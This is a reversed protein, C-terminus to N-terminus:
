VGREDRVLSQFVAPPHMRPELADGDLMRELCAEVSEAVVIANEKAAIVAETLLAVEGLRGHPEIKAALIGGGRLDCFHLWKVTSQERLKRRAAALARPDPARGEAEMTRVLAEWKEFAPSRAAPVELVRLDDAPRIVYAAGKDGVHLSAGNTLAYLAALDATGDGFRIGRATEDLLPEGIAHELEVGLQAEGLPARLSHEDRFLTRRLRDEFSPGHVVWGLSPRVALTEPDQDIGILGGCVDLTADHLEISVTSLGTPLDELGPPYSGNLLGNVTPETRALYPFLCFIWGNYATEQGGCGEYTESSFITRWFWPDVDGRSASVFQDCIERLKPTWFGLGFRDLEDVKARIREWDGPTGLLTISPIGCILELKYRFYPSTADMLVLLSVTRELVGTTSFDCVVLDTIDKSNADILGAFHAFIDNWADTREASPLASVVVALTKKGEHMVIKDRLREAHFRIHQALGQALTIWIMDPSLVLPYHQSYALLVADALPHTGATFISADDAYSTAIPKGAGPLLRKQLIGNALGMGVWPVRRPAVPHVDFTVGKSAVDGSPRSM